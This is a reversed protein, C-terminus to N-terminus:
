LPDVLMKFEKRKQPILLSTTKHVSALVQNEIYFEERTAAIPLSYTHRHFLPVFPPPEM